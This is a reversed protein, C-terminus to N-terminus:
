PEDRHNHPHDRPHRDPPCLPPEARGSKGHHRHAREPPAGRQEAQGQAPQRGPRSGPRDGPDGPQGRVRHHADPHRQRHGHQLAQHPQPEAARDGRRALTGARLTDPVAAARPAALKRTTALSAALAGFCTLAAGLIQLLTPREDIVAAAIVLSAVPQLVLMLSSVAAPLRPLSSTILLWGAVQSVLGLVILWGLSPWLPHLGLGGLVLGAVLSAATAGATSDAVPGAIHPSDASSRRLIMLFGSYAVATGLGYLVGALPHQGTAPTGVLGSVLVVGAMVVPIALAVARSPREHWILWSIGAVILVQLNGLVTAVGAGIDAISHTWLILDVALFVGASGATLRQRLSRSGHKRQELAALAILVPLAIASRYFATSVASAGSLVVLVPSSSITAAGLGALLLPQRELLGRAGTKSGSAAIPADSGTIVTASKPATM